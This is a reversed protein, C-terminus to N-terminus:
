SCKNKNFCVDEGKGIHVGLIWFKIMLVLAIATQTTGTERGDFGKSIKLQKRESDGYRIKEGLFHFSETFKLSLFPLLRGM